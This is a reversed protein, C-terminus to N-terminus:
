KRYFNTIAQVAEALDRVVAIEHGNERLSKHVIEQSESVKGSTGNKVEIWLIRPHLCSTMGLCGATFAAWFVMDPMGARVGEAKMRAGAIMRDKATAGRTGGNPIAAFRDRVMGAGMGNCWKVIARQLCHENKAPKRRVKALYKQADTKKM